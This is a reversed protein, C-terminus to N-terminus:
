NPPLASPEDTHNEIRSLREAHDIRLLKRAKAIKELITLLRVMVLMRRLDDLPQLFVLAAFTAMRRHPGDNSQRGILIHGVEGRMQAAAPGAGRALSVGIHGGRNGGSVEPRPFRLNHFDM